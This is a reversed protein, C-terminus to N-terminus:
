ALIRPLTRSDAAGGARAPHRESPPWNFMLPMARGGSGHNRPLYTGKPKLGAKLHNLHAETFVVRGRRYYPPPLMGLVVAGLISDADVGLLEALEVGTYTKEVKRRAAVGATKKKLM